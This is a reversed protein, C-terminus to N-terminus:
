FCLKKQSESLAEISPVNEMHTCLQLFMEFTHVNLNVIKFSHANTFINGLNHGCKFALFKYMAFVAVKVKGLQINVM